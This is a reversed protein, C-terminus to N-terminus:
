DCGNCTDCDRRHWHGEDDKYFCKSEGWLDMYREYATDDDEDYDGSWCGDVYERSGSNNGADEDAWQHEIYSDPYMEALKLIVPEPNSWATEFKITDDDVIELSYANWKTGWHRVCWDYWSSSGYKVVNEAYKLGTELLEQLKEPTDYREVIRSDTSKVSVPLFRQSKSLTLILAAIADSESSGSTINLSEPMPILKNFDFYKSGDESEGFLPLKAIGKMRIRNKVHNPM